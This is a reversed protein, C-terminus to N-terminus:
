WSILDFYGCIQLLFKCIYERVEGSGWCPRMGSFLREIDLVGGFVERVRRMFHTGALDVGYASGRVVAMEVCVGLDEACIEGLNLLRKREVCDDEGRPFVILMKVRNASGMYRNAWLVCIPKLGWRGLFELSRQRWLIFDDARIDVGEGGIFSGIVFTGLSGITFGFDGMFSCIGLDNGGFNDIM